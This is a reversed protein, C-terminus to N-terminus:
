EEPDVSEIIREAIEYWNVGRLAAQLIDAFFGTGIGSGLVDTGLDDTWAELAKSVDYTDRECDRVMDGFTEEADNGHWLYWNWTEYNSWGNFREDM